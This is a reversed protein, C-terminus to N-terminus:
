KKGEWFRSAPVNNITELTQISRLITADRAMQFDGQLKKLPLGVLPSLDTVSAGQLELDGLPMGRLPALDSVKCNVLALTELRM